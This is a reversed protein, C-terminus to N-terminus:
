NGATSQFLLAIVYIAYITLLVVGRGRGLKGRTGAILLLTTVFGFALATGTPMPAVRIPHICAAIAVIFWANFINSGLVTGLGIESHGRLASIVSTALEPMSTGLAVVTAGIIFESFGFRTAIERAGAVIFHGSAVLCVLGLLGVAVALWPGAKEVPFTASRRAHRAERIVSAMWLGFGVLLAVGDLRSITGDMGLAAILVPVMLATLRDRKETHAGGTIPLICLATALILAINVVNSGLADGLSIEPQGSVASGIAVSLEPSSTAFAAVTAAIAAKPLRSWKALGVLSRVFLDGGIGACLLGVMLSLGPNVPV